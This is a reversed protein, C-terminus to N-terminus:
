ILSKRHNKFVMCFQEQIVVVEVKKRRKRKNKNKTPCPRDMHVCALSRSNTLPPFQFILHMKGTVIVLSYFIFACQVTQLSSKILRKSSIFKQGKSKTCSVGKKFAHCLTLFAMEMNRCTMQFHRTIQSTTCFVLFISLFIVSFTENLMALM